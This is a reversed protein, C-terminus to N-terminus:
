ADNTVHDKIWVNAGDSRPGIANRGAVIEDAPWGRRVNGIGVCVPREIVPEQGSAITALADVEVSEIVNDKATAASVIADFNNRPATIDSDIATGASIRDHDMGAKTGIDRNEISTGVILDVNSSGVPRVLDQDGRVIDIDERVPRDYRQQM